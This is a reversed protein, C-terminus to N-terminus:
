TPLFIMRPILGSSKSSVAMSGSAGASRRILTVASRVSGSPESTSTWKPVSAVATTELAAAASAPSSASM